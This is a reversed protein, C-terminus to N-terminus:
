TTVEILNQFKKLQGDKNSLFVKKNKFNKLVEVNVEMTKIWVELFNEMIRIKM